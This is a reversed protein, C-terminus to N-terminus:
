KNSKLVLVKSQYENNADSMALQEKWSFSLVSHNLLEDFLYSEQNNQFKYHSIIYCGLTNM